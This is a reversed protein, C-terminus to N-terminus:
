HASFNLPLIPLKKQGRRPSTARLDLGLDVGLGPVKQEPYM